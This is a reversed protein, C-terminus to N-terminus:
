ENKKLLMQMMFNLTQEIRNQQMEIRDLQTELRNLRTMLPDTQSYGAQTNNSYYNNTTPGNTPSNDIPSNKLEANELDVGTETQNVNNTIPSNNFESNSIMVGSNGRGFQLWSPDVGLAESLQLINRPDKTDGNEIKQIANQSVGIKKGLELQTLGKNLRTSKVRQALTDM